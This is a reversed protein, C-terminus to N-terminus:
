SSSNFSSYLYYSSVDSDASEKLMKVAVTTEDEHSLIGLAKAKVVVGFAGSGLLQGLKLRDSLFEFKKNYPLLNAQEILSLEPNIFEPNGNEFDAM